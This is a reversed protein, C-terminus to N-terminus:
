KEYMWDTIEIEKLLEKLNALTAAVKIKDSETTDEKRPNKTINNKDKGASKKGKAQM